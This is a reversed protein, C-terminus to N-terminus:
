RGDDLTDVVTIGDVKVNPADRLDIGRPRVVAEVVALRPDFGRVRIRGTAPDHRFDHWPKGDRLLRTPRTPVPASWAGDAEHTWGEVLDSGSITVKEGRAARATFHGARPHFSERYVGGRLVLTGGPPVLECARKLSKLPVAPYGWGPADAAAPHRPDVHYVDPHELAGVAQGGSGAHIAPSDKRLRFNRGAADVFMPDRGNVNTVGTLAQTDFTLNHEVVPSSALFDRDGDILAREAHCLINDRIQGGTSEKGRLGIASWRVFAITNHAITVGPTQIIDPGWGARISPGGASVINGVLSWNRVSGLHPASEVMCMQHFDFCTNQEFQLDRAVEGNVTFTQLCDVHAVRIEESRSGHYYNFRQVCGKGFFRTYDCDDFRNGPTYMFLRDVENSEVSWDNGGLVFGYQCHVVRNYAVRNRSVASYDRSGSVPDPRGATGAVGVMMDHILNDEVVCDSGGLQVAVGPRDATIEFGEVRVFNAQLDFGNVVASRLPVARLTIPRAKDGSTRVTVREDYRGSMVAVVDGPRLSAVARGITRFPRESTGANDDSALPSARDVVLLEARGPAAVNAAIVLFAAMLVTARRSSTTSVPTVGPNRM